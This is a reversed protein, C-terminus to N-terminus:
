ECVHACSEIAIGACPAPPCVAVVLPVGLAARLKACSSNGEDEMQLLKRGPTRNKEVDGLGGLEGLDMFGLEIEEITTRTQPQARLVGRPTQSSAPRRYSSMQSLKLAFSAVVVRKTVSIM